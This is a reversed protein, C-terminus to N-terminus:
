IQSNESHHSDYGGGAYHQKHGELAASCCDYVSRGGNILQHYIPYDDLRQGQMDHAKYRYAQIDPLYEAQSTPPLWVGYDWKDFFRMDETFVGRGAPSLCLVFIQIDPQQMRLLKKESIVISKPSPTLCRQVQIGYCGAWLDIGDADEEASAYTITDRYYHTNGKRSSTINERVAIEAEWGLQLLDTDSYDHKM